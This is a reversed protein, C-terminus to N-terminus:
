IVEWNTRGVESTSDSVKKSNQLLLLTRADNGISNWQMGKIGLCSIKTKRIYTIESTVLNYLVGHYSGITLNTLQYINSQWLNLEHM